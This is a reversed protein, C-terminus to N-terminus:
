NITAFRCSERVIEGDCSPCYPISIRWEIDTGFLSFCGDLFQLASQCYNCKQGHRRSCESHFFDQISQLVSAQPKPCAGNPGPSKSFRGKASAHGIQATNSSKSYTEVQSEADCIATNESGTACANNRFWRQLEDKFAFVPCRAGKGLRHIPLALSQEWRQVTRVGRDLELAIEKWSQLVTRGNRLTPSNRPDYDPLTPTPIRM